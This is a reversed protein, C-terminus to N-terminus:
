RLWLLPYRRVYQVGLDDHVVGLVWDSGIEHVVLGRPFVVRGLLRGTEAFVVWESIEDPFTAFKAIWYNGKADIKMASVLPAVQPLSSEEFARQVVVRYQPNDEAADIQDQELRAVEAPDLPRQSGPVRAIMVVNGSGDRRVFEIATSRLTTAGGDAHPVWFTAAGFPRMAGVGELSGDGADWVERLQEEAATVAITDLERGSPDLHRLILSDTVLTLPTVELDGSGSGAYRSRAVYTGDVLRQVEGFPEGGRRDFTVAGVLDGAHSFHTVRQNMPDWAWVGDEDVGAIAIFGFEGPGGGRGGATVRHIGDPGFISLSLSHLDAVVVGGNSLSRAESVQGFSYEAPGEAVGITLNPPGLEAVISSATIDGRNEVLSIGASDRVSVASPAETVAECAGCTMAVLWARSLASMRPSV